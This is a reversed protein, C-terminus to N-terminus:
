FLKSNKVTFIWAYIFTSATTYNAGIYGDSLNLSEWSITMKTGEKKKKNEKGFSQLAFGPCWTLEGWVGWYVDRFVDNRLWLAVDYWITLYKQNGGFHRSITPKNPDTDLCLKLM